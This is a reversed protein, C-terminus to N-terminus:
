FAVLKQSSLPEWVSVEQCNLLDFTSWLCLPVAVLFVSYILSKSRQVSSFYNKKLFFLFEFFVYIMNKKNSWFPKILLHSKSYRLFWFLGYWMARALSCTSGMSATPQIWLTRVLRSGRSPQMQYNSPSAMRNVGHTQSSSSQNREFADRFDAVVKHIDVVHEALIEHPSMKCWM